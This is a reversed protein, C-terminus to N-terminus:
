AKKLKALRDRISQAKNEVPLMAMMKAILDDAKITPTWQTGYLFPRDKRSPYSTTYHLSYGSANENLSDQLGPCIEWGLKRGLDAIMRRKDIPENQSVVTNDPIQEM